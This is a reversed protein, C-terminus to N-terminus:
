LEQGILSHPLDVLRSRLFEALGKAQPDPRTSSSVGEDLLGHVVFNVARLNPFEHRTIELDGVEPILLRLRAVTLWDSMWRAVPDTRAWIGVNANGGKDGSRAGVVTGLPARVTPSPPVQPMSEWSFPPDDIDAKFNGPTQEVPIRHGNPLAVVEHVEIKSVLTPWYVGFPQADGPPTTFTAGPYTSLALEVLPAAFNRKSVPDPSSATGIVRLHSTAAVNLDADERAFDLLQFELDVSQDMQRVVTREVLDAKKRVNLGTMVFTMENRFGGLTNICVKLADTPPEGRVGAIRVRDPGDDSLEITDFRTTVDPNLYRPGAIEYLLQATVTDRSVLGGTGDHKTIVCSGDEDIEAIPFGPHELGPVEEFFAYNGGTAQAGCEIVHGAVVAGALRDWDTRSWGYHWAAPGVVVSADTVRPCIVIDAGAGLAEVIGWGGLYANATLAPRGDEWFSGGRDLHTFPNGEARIHELHPLLDDGEIHAVQLDVGADDVADRVATALASPALGGANVVVKVNRRAVEALDARLQHLFTKAYGSGDRQQSRWLLLMTLEALYDGTIVDVPGETLVEHFANFRDGYFGSCNAIRLV